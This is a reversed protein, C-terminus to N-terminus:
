VCVTESATEDGMDDLILLNPKLYRAMVKEQGDFAEDHLL